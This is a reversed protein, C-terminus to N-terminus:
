PKFADKLPEACALDALAEILAHTGLHLDDIAVKEDVDHGPYPKDPVWMGFSISRPIKKAYTTGASVSVPDNRGTARRYAATLRKVIKANPDQVLPESTFYGGPQLTAGTSENFQGVRRDLKEKLASGTEGPNTRINISLKLLGEPTGRVMTPAVVARGFTPHSETLGLAVGELDRGALRAFALIDRGGGPPLEQELITAMAVLANRGGPANVGAHAAKGHVRLVLAAGEGAIELRTGPPLPRAAVRLSLAALEAEHGPVAEIKAVALDPVISFAIGAELSALRVEAAPDRVALRTEVTLLNWAKEGVGVPFASDLVLTLDPPAHRELYEKMDTAGSEEDSGVLLRVAHTRLRSSGQLVKMALLAQVLPGKDDAVGRGLVMGDKVAAEFAAFTWQGDAPVVDGHVALGLVPAGPAAPLEIEVVKGADRFAFGLDRATRELWAKQEAFARENGAYTPFRVVEELMPVLKAAWRADYADHLPKVQACALGASAVIPLLLARMKM